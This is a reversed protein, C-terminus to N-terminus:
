DTLGVDVVDGVPVFDDKIIKMILNNCFNSGMLSQNPNSIIHSTIHSCSNMLRMVSSDDKDNREPNELDELIRMTNTAGVYPNNVMGRVFKGVIEDTLHTSKMLGIQEHIKVGDELFKQFVCDIKQDILGRNSNGITHRLKSPKIIGHCVGNKCIFISSSCLGNFSFSKDNFNRFGVSLAYDPHADDEVEATFMYRDGGKLSTGDKTEKQRLLAGKEDKFRLGLATAKERFKTLIDASSIPMHKPGRPTLVEHERIFDIDTAGDETSYWDHDIIMTNM